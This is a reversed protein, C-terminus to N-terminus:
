VENRIIRLVDNASHEGMLSESFNLSNLRYLIFLVASISAIYSAKILSPLLEGHSPLISVSALLILAFFSILLWQEKPIVEERLALVRKRVQQCADLGKIISGLSQNAVKNVAEEKIHEDLADHLEQLTTSRQTYYHDWQKSQLIDTYHRTLIEGIHAQLGDDIHKSTRYINSVKGDFSTVAERISHFRKGQQTIFFGTFISFLFTVTTLYIRDLEYSMPIAYFLVTFVPIMIVLISTFTSSKM